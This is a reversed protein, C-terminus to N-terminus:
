PDLCSDPTSPICTTDLLAPFPLQLRILNPICSPYRWSTPVHIGCALIRNNCSLSAPDYRPSGSSGLPRLSSRVLSRTLPSSTPDGFIRMQLTHPWCARPVPCGRHTRAPGWSLSDCSPTGIPPLLHCSGGFCLLGLGHMWCVQGVQDTCLGVHNTPLPGYRRLSESYDKWSWQSAGM